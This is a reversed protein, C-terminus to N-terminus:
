QEKKKMEFRISYLFTLFNSVTEVPRPLSGTRFCRLIEKADETTEDTGDTVNTQRGDKGAYNRVSDSRTVHLLGRAIEGCRMSRLAKQIREVSMSYNMKKQLIRLITLAVYCILFHAIIHERTWVFFPRADLGSKEIRFSEEIRWLGHYTERIKREGYETESTIICFYGDLKEEEAIKEEDIRGAADDKGDTKIYEKFSHDLRYAGSQLYRRAMAVKQDRKKKTRVADALSFYILVKRKAKAANGDKDKYTYEEEFIKYRYSEDGTYGKGDLAIEQYRKGKKGRLIQSFVYGCGRNLLYEINPVSNLGKDAVIILKKTLSRNNELIRDVIPILQTSDSVNGPHVELRVPIANDDIILSTSVIPDLSHEKSVGKKRAGLVCYCDILEQENGDSDMAIKYVEPKGDKGKKLFSAGIGGAMGVPVFRDEDNYDVTTMFNTVDLFMQERNRGLKEEIISDLHDQLGDQCEYFRDLSRYLQMLSLDPCQFNYLEQYKQYTARKSDPSLIRQLVLFEFTTNLPTKGKYPIRAFFEKLGLERYIGHLLSYGFNYTSGYESALFDDQKALSIVATSQENLSENLAYAEKLLADPDEATELYGFDKITRKRSKGSLPDRYSQVVRIQTFTGKKTVHTDRKVM